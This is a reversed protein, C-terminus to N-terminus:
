YYYEARAYIWTLEEVDLLQHVGAVHAIDTFIHLARDNVWQVRLTRFDRLSVGHAKNAPGRLQICAQAQDYPVAVANTQYVIASWSGLPSTIVSM